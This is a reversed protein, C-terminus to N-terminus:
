AIRWVRVMNNEVQRTTFDKHENGFYNKFKCVVSRVSRKKRVPVVFSDGVEMDALPYITKPPQNHPKQQRGDYGPMPIGKEIAIKM